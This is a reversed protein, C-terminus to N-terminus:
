EGLYDKVIVNLELDLPGLVVGSRKFIEKHQPFKNSVLEIVAKAILESLCKNDTKLESLEKFTLSVTTETDNVKINGM